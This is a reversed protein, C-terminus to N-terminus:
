LLGARTPKDCEPASLSCRRKCLTCIGTTGASSNTGSSSSSNNSASGSESSRASNSSGTNGSSGTSASSSSRSSGAGPSTSTRSDNRRARTKSDNPTSNPTADVSTSASPESSSSENLTDQTAAAAQIQAGVERTGIIGIAAAGIVAATSTVSGIAKRRAPDYPIEFVKAVFIWHIALHLATVACLGYASITHMVSLTSFLEFPLHASVVPVVNSLAASTALLCLGFLALAGMVVTQARQKFSRKRRNAHVRFQARFWSRSFVVHVILTVFFLLGAIEHFLNGTLSYFMEIVIMLCLAVDVIRRIYKKM